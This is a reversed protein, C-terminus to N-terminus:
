RSPSLPAESQVVIEKGVMLEEYHGPFTERFLDVSWDCSDHPSLSVLQPEERRLKNAEM